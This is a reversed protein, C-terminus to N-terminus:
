SNVLAVKRHLKLLNHTLCVLRWEARIKALGRLLFQRFGMVHKIQGFIPEIIGKRKAYMAKGRSTRLKRAMQQKMSLGQPPRGRPTVGAEEHHKLRETAIFPEVKQKELYAVNAESYYGSDMLGRKVKEKVRAAKLNKRTQQFMPKVQRKDNPEATVDAALIIQQANATAQANGCQDWGKNSVKMIKSEPDTFNRQAKPDPAAPKVPPEQQKAAAEAEAKAKAEAELAAKAERIRKLRDKRRALEEPLEDGRRDGHRADEEADTAEAQALLGRIERRLRKEEEQMREYSMAKHRSANAKIKTGDLAITGVKVLGAAACLRLVQVFLEELAALHIKRFDSITRFDPVEESVIVRFPIQEQCAAMIKRSSFIGRAYAYLLLCVMMVPHYPPQGRLEGEYHGRIASLDMQDMVDLLFYVLHGEPVWDRPSPPLLWSQDPEWRRYTKEM